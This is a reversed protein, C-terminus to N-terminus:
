RAKLRKEAAAATLARLGVHDDLESANQQYQGLRELIGLGEDHRGETLATACLLRAISADDPALANAIKWAGLSRSEDVGAYALAASCVASFDTDDIAVAAEALQIAREHNGSALALRSMGAVPRPDLPAFATADTMVAIARDFQNLDFWLRAELLAAEARLELCGSRGIQRCVELFTGTQHSLYAHEAQVLQTAAPERIPHGIAGFMSDDVIVWDDLMLGSRVFLSKMSAFRFARRAPPVLVQDRSAIPEAVYVVELKPARSLLCRLTQSPDSVLGLVDVILAASGSFAVRRSQVDAHILEVDPVYQRAFAVAKGDIDLGTVRSHTQLLWRLGMGAGCGVDLLHSANVGLEIFRRYCAHTSPAPGALGPYCRRRGLEAQVTTGSRFHAFWESRNRGQVYTPDSTAPLDRASSHALPRM